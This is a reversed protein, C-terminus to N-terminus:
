ARRYDSIMTYDKRPGRVRWEARWAPWVSFDYRVRYDDPDCWHQAEAATQDPSFRHFFRGDSFHVAIAGGEEAWAYAREARMPRAGPILLEGEERYALGGGEPRLWARGTFAAEPQGAARIRRAITWEGAFDALKRAM